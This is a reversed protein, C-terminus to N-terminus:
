RTNYNDLGEENLKIGEVCWDNTEHVETMFNNLRCIGMGQDEGKVREFARCQGCSFKLKIRRSVMRIVRDIILTQEFVCRKTSSQEELGARLAILEDILNM